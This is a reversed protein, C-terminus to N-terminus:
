DHDVLSETVAPLDHEALSGAGVKPVLRGPHNAGTGAVTGVVRDLDARHALLTECGLCLRCTKGLLVLGVGEVHIVLPLKRVRTKAECRPCKTFGADAPPNLVFAYRPALAGMQGKRGPKTTAM